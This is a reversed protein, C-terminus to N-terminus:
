STPNLKSLWGIASFVLQNPIAREGDGQEGDREEDIRQENNEQIRIKQEKILQGNFLQDVIDVMALPLGEGELPQLSKAAVALFRYAIAIEGQQPENTLDQVGKLAPRILRPWAIGFRCELFRAYWLCPPSLINETGNPGLLLM